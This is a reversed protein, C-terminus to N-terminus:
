IHIVSLGDVNGETEFAGGQVVRQERALAKRLNEIADNRKNVILLFSAVLLQLTVEDSSGSAAKSSSSNSRGAGGKDRRPTTFLSVRLFM